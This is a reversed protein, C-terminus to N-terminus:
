LRLRPKGNGNGNSPPADIVRLATLRDKNGYWNDDEVVKVNVNVTSNTRQNIDTKDSQGLYQKGLWILMTTNGELAIQVQKRKLSSALNARGRNMCDSYREILVDKGCDMLRAIEELTCGWSAALEIQREPLLLRPRGM